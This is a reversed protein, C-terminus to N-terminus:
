GLDLRRATPSGTGFLCEAPAKLHDAIKQRALDCLGCQRCSTSDYASLPLSALLRRGFEVGLDEDTPHSRLMQEAEVSFQGIFDEMERCHERQGATDILSNLCDVFARNRRDIDADGTRYRSKWRLQRM